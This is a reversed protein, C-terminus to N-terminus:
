GVSATRLREARSQTRVNRVRKRQGPKNRGRPTSPAPISGDTSTVTAGASQIQFCTKVAKHRQEASMGLWDNTAVRHRANQPQLVFNGLGCIAQDADAYQVDVLLRVCCCFRHFRLLVSVDCGVNINDRKRDLCGSGPALLGKVEDHFDAASQCSHRVNLMTEVDADKPPLEVRCHRRCSPSM